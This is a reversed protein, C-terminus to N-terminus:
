GQRLFAYRHPSIKYVRTRWTCFCVPAGEGQVCCTRWEVTNMYRAYLSGWRYVSNYIPKYATIAAGTGVRVELYRRQEANVLSRFIAITATSTARRGARRAHSSAVSPMTVYSRTGISFHKPHAQVGFGAGRVRSLSVSTRTFWGNIQQSNLREYSSGQAPWHAPCNAGCRKCENFYSSWDIDQPRSASRAFHFIIFIILSINHNCSTDSFTVGLIPNRALTHGAVNPDRTCRLSPDEAVPSGDVGYEKPGSTPESRWGKWRRRQRRRSSVFVKLTVVARWRRWANISDSTSDGTELIRELPCLRSLNGTRYGQSVPRSVICFIGGIRPRCNSSSSEHHRQEERSWENRHWTWVM